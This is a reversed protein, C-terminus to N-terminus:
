HEIKLTLESEKALLLCHHICCTAHDCVWLSAVSSSVREHIVVATERICVVAGVSRILTSM